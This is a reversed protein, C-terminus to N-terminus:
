ALLQRAPHIIPRDELVGGAGRVMDAELMKQTFNTPFGLSDQTFGGGGPGQGRRGTPTWTRYLHLPRALTAVQQNRSRLKFSPLTHLTARHAAVCLFCTLFPNADVLALGM